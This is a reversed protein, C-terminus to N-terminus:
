AAEIFCPVHAGASLFSRRDIFDIARSMWAFVSVSTTFPTQDTHNQQPGPSYGFRLKRPGPHRPHPQISKTVVLHPAVSGSVLLEGRFTKTELPIRRKWPDIRLPYILKLSHIDRKLQLPDRFIFGRSM